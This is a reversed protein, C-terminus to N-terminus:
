KSWPVDLDVCVCQISSLRAQNSGTITQRVLPPLLLLFFPFVTSNIVGFSTWSRINQTNRTLKRTNKPWTKQTHLCQPFRIPSPLSPLYSLTGGQQVSSSSMLWHTAVTIRQRWHHGLAIVFVFVTACRTGVTLKASENSRIKSM